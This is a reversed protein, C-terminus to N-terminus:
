RLLRRQPPLRRPERRAKTTSRGARPDASNADDVVSSSVVYKPERTELEDRTELDCEDDEAARAEVVEVGRSVVGSDPGALAFSVSTPAAQVALTACLALIASATSYRM